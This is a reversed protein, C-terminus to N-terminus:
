WRSRVEKGVRREESRLNDDYLRNSYDLIFLCRIGLKAMDAVLGDYATFDYEGKTREVCGWSFDMRIFRAGSEGLTRLEDPGAHTFHINVGFGDPIGLAPLTPVQAQMAAGSIFLAM